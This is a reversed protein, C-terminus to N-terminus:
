FPFDDSESGKFYPSELEEKNGEVIFKARDFLEDFTIIEINRSDRRFLEFTKKKINREQTNDSNHLEDWRGIILVVKSDYAKQNILEGEVYQDGDLRILGSAKHELIQSVSDILDKSLTWSKSRNKINGFLPTSPKKLEIFTTFRKDGLLYDGIVANSGDLDTDSLHVERQLIEQFRYDLGYGFIWENKELFFQWVKEESSDSIDNESAYTKWYENENLMREFIQLGRKRFSTNVIDRSTIIGEEILSEIVAAGGDRSLLTKVQKITNEDLEEDDFIKLRKESIGKLDIESLLSLFAKIQVLNFKNLSVKQKENDSILKIFEIGEIDDKEKIYVAKLMTRSALKIQFGKEDQHVVQFFRGKDFEHWYLRNPKMNQIIEEESPNLNGVPSM